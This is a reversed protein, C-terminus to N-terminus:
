FAYIRRMEDNRETGGLDNVALLSGDATSARRSSSADGNNRNRVPDFSNSLMTPSSEMDERFDVIIAKCAVIM